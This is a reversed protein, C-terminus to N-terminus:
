QRWPMSSPQSRRLADLHRREARLAQALGMHRDLSYTWHGARGRNRESRLARALMRCIRLTVAVGDPEMDALGVPLLRPLIRGRVYLGAGREIIEAPIPLPRPHFAM